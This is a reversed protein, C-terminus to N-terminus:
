DNSVYKNEGLIIFEAEGTNYNYTVSNILGELFRGNQTKVRCFDIINDTLTNFKENTITTNFKVSRYFRKPATNTIDVNYNITDFDYYPIVGIISGKFKYFHRYVKHWNTQFINYVYGSHKGLVVYNDNTWEMYSGSGDNTIMYVIDELGDSYTNALDEWIKVSGINFSSKSDYVNKIACVNTGLTFDRNSLTTNADDGLVIASYGLTDSYEMELNKPYEFIFNPTTNFFYGADEVILEIDGANNYKATFYVNFEKNLNEMIQKFSMNFLYPSPQNKIGRYNFFVPYNGGDTFDQIKTISITIPAALSDATAELIEIPLNSYCTVKKTPTDVITQVFNRYDDNYQLTRSIGDNDNLYISSSLLRKAVELLHSSGTNVNSTITQTNGQFNKFTITSSTIDALNGTFQLEYICYNSYTSLYTSTVSVNVGTIAETVLRLAEDWYVGYGSYANNVKPTGYTFNAFSAPTIPNDFIDKDTELDITVDSNRSILVLPSNDQIEINAESQSENIKISGVEAIGDFITKWSKSCYQEIKINIDCTTELDFLDKLICYGDGVFVLDFSSVSYIGFIDNDLTFEKSFTELGKPNQKLITNNISVRFEM